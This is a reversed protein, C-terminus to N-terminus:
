EKAEAEKKTKRAKFQVYGYRTRFRINGKKPPQIIDYIEGMINGFKLEFERNHESHERGLKALKDHLEILKKKTIKM